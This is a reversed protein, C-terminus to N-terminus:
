ACYFTITKETPLEASRRAVEQAPMSLAGAIHGQEYTARSRVDVLIAEGADAALRAETVGVRPVDAKTPQDGTATPSPTILPVWTATPRRVTPSPEAVTPTSSPVETTRYSAPLTSDVLPTASASCAALVISLLAILVLGRCLARSPTRAQSNGPGGCPHLLVRDPETQLKIAGL